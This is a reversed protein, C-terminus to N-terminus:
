FFRSCTVLAYKGRDDRLSARHDCCFRNIKADVRFKKGYGYSWLESEVYVLINIMAWLESIM